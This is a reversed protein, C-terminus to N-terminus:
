QVFEIFGADRVDYSHGRTGEWMLWLDDLVKRVTLNFPVRRHVNPDLGLARLPIRIEATWRGPETHNASFTVDALDGATPEGRGKATSGFTVHGNGYGRLVHTPGPEGELEIQISVEVAEDSGWQNGDLETDPDITNDVALYLASEDYALWAWSLREARAGNHHQALVMAKARDAGHWEAPDIAGDINIAGATRPVQFVPPPGKPPPIPRKPLPPLPEAPAYPWSERPPDPRLEDTFLGMKEFPIPEFGPLKTFVQAEPLLRFDGNAADVFGPDTDTVWNEEEVDVQWNGSSVDAGMVIVNRKAQSVRQQGPQPDMFGVLEPYRTTYPPRTIDVDQLLRTQWLDADIYDKWNSDSWPASGLARKCAIFVNNEALIDHGGHSFVTGFSGKGPEGCRFFVNGFVTEGGDGDDFYVAANGHGMPSGINHWFNYRIVNGRMSPDRGKYLAGADDTETCIHHVINYEFVHDNGSVYIGQHPADHILNHAARNGVGALTLGHASTLQHRSFDWIHNNSAEHGAATLTPRDGGALYLGGTGTDHIDCAEVRHGSGGEIRIGLQRMNRVHCAQLRNGKGETMHIADGLGMEVIFGRVTVHEAGNLVLVPAALTSLVIQAGALEEPPWFYLRARDRDIYYEGPQDLEELLNLARYRRPSPNGQQVSYTHPEALTIHRKERDISKVQITEERWDYCWYGQLWVGAEVNWRKPQDGSYEFVGPRNSRDGDRPRSGSDIIKAITTWGENPWRALSMRQDNFFLEPAMPVGHFHTPFRGLETIGLASLDVQRVNGRAARDLRAMVAADTVPGFAEAPVTQGGTLRVEEDPAARFVVPSEPTGSDEVTLELSQTQVYVGGSVIITAGGTPLPGEAKLARIADRARAPTAFPGDTGAANPEALTGSWADNGDTAVYLVAGPAAGTPESHARGCLAAVVLLTSLSVIWPMDM